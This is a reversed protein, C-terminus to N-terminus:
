VNLALWTRHISKFLLDHTKQIQFDFLAQFEFFHLWKEERWMLKVHKIDFRELFYLILKLDSTTILINVENM